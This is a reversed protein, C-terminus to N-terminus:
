NKTINTHYYKYLAKVEFTKNEPLNEDIYNFNYISMQEKM